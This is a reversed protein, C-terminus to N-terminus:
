TKRNLWVIRGVLGVFFGIIGGSVLMPVSNAMLGDGRDKTMGNAIMALVMSVVGVGCFAALVSFGAVSLILWARKM